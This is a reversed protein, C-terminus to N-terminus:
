VVEDLISPPSKTLPDLRDAQQSAWTLWKEAESGPMIEGQSQNMVSRAAEIYSRIQQSKVWNAAEMELARVRTKEEEILKAREQRIRIIEQRKQEELERRKREEEIKLAGEVLGIMFSNLLNELRQKVGDSWSKRCGYVYSKITLELMDSPYYDYQNYSYLFYPDRKKTAPEPPRKKQRYHEILGFEMNEGLVTVSTVWTRDHRKLQIDYGRKEFAKLLADVICLARHVNKLSVQVDLHEEMFIKIIGKEDPKRSKLLHMTKEVYPHPNRLTTNVTVRNEPLKEFVINEHVPEAEEASDGTTLKSKSLCIKEKYPDKLPPLPIQRVAFGCEKRRWYGREPRPVNMKKCIKALGVDSINFRRALQQMPESWVLNYLEDRSLCIEDDNM